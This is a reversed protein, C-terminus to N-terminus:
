NSGNSRGVMKLIRDFNNRGSDDTSAGTSGSSVRSSIQNLYAQNALAQSQADMIFQNTDSPLTATDLHRATNNRQNELLLALAHITLSTLSGNCGIGNLTSNNMQNQSAQLLAQFANQLNSPMGVSRGRNSPVSNTLVTLLLNNTQAPVRNFDGTAFQNVHSPVPYVQSHQAVPPANVQQVQRLLTLLSPQSLGLAPTAAAFQAPCLRFAANAAFANLAPLRAIAAVSVPAAVPEENRGEENNGEPSYTAGFPDSSINVMLESPIKAKPGRLKIVDMMVQMERCVVTSTPLPYIVSIAVLDPEYELLFCSSFTLTFAFYRFPNFHQGTNIKGVRPKKNEGARPRTMKKALWPLGRLFHEEYYSGRTPGETIRRFCWGNVQRRFSPM